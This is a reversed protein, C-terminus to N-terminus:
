TIAHDISCEAAAAARRAYMRSNCRGMSGLVLVPIISQGGTM